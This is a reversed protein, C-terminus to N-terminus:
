IIEHKETDNNGLNDEWYLTITDGAEAGNLMFSFFPDKAISIGMYSTVVVSDNHALTLKHIFHAPIVANTKKDHNLGSEMPHTILTRVQTKNGLRKSRIKISSM